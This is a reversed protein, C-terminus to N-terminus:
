RVPRVSSVAPRPMASARGRLPPARRRPAEELGIPNSLTTDGRRQTIDNVKLFTFESLEAEPAPAHPVVYMRLLFHVRGDAHARGEPLRLVPLHHASDLIPAHSTCRSGSSRISALQKISKLCVADGRPSAVFM